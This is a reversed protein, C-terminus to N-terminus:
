FLILTSQMLQQPDAMRLLCLLRREGNRPLPVGGGRQSRPTIDGWRVEPTYSDLPPNRGSLVPPFVQFPAEGKQECRLDNDIAHIKSKSTVNYMYM